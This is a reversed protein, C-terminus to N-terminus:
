VMDICYHESLFLERTDQSFTVESVAGEERNGFKFLTVKSPVVNNSVIENL